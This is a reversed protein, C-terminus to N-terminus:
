SFVCIIIFIMIFNSEYDHGQNAEMCLGLFKKRLTTTAKM